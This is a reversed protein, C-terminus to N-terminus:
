GCPARCHKVHETAGPSKDVSSKRSITSLPAGHWHVVILAEIAPLFRQDHHGQLLMRGPFDSARRAAALLQLLEKAWENSVGCLLTLAHQRSQPFEYSRLDQCYPDEAGQYNGTRRYGGQGSLIIRGVTCAPFGHVLPMALAAM